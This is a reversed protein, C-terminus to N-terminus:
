SSAVADASAAGYTQASLRVRVTVHTTKEETLMKLDHGDVHHFIRHLQPTASTAASWAAVTAPSKQIYARTRPTTANAHLKLDM